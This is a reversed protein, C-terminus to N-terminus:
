GEPGKGAGELGEKSGGPASGSAATRSRHERGIGRAVAIWGAAFPLAALSLSGLGSFLDLLSAFWVGLLDGGRWVATDIFNKAKYKEVASLPSFLVEKTPATVGYGVSRRAVEFVVIVALVPAAGLATLGLLYVVPLVCLTAGVGIWALLRGAAFAQLFLILGNSTVDMLAFLRAREAEDAVAAAIIASREYYAVSACVSTLLMYGCIALMYPSRQIRRWGELLGGGLAGDRRDPQGSAGSPVARQLGRMCVVQAELMGVSILLLLAPGVAHVFAATIAAGCLAGLSGGAIVLGFLRRGQGTSFLDVVLSWTVSVVILNYVSTWSFFVSGVRGRLEDPLFHLLASFLALNLAFFHCIWPVVRRRPFRAVLLAFVPSAVLMVVFTLLYLWKLNRLGEAIGFADRLPRLVYYGSLACFFTAAAWLVCAAEGEEIGFVRRQLSRLV